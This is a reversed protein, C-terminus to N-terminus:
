GQNSHILQPRDTAAALSCSSFSRNSIYGQISVLMLWDVTFCSVNPDIAKQNLVEKAADRKTAEEKTTSSCSMTPWQLSVPFLHNSPNVSYIKLSPLPYFHTRDKVTGHRLMACCLNTSQNGARTKSKKKVFPLLSFHNEVMCVTYTSRVLTCIWSASSIFALKLLRDLISAM